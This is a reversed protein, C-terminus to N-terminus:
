EVIALREVARTIATRRQAHNHTSRTPHKTLLLKIAAWRVSFYINRKGRWGDIWEKAAQRDRDDALSGTQSRRPRSLMGPRRSVARVLAAQQPLVPEPAPSAAPEQASLEWLSLPFTRTSGTELGDQDDPADPWTGSADATM